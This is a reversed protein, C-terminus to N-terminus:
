FIITQGGKIMTMKVQPIHNEVNRPKAFNIRIAICLKLASIKLIIM